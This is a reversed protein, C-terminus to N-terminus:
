PDFLFIGNGEGVLLEEAKKFVDELDKNSIQYNIDHFLQMVPGFTKGLKKYRIDGKIGHFGDTKLQVCVFSNLNNLVM